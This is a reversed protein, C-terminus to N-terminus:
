ATRPERRAALGAGFGGVMALLLAASAAVLAPTHAHLVLILVDFRGWGGPVADIWSAVQGNLVLVVPVGLLLTPFLLALAGARVMWARRRKRLRADAEVARSVRGWFGAPATHKAEGRLAADIEREFSDSPWDM